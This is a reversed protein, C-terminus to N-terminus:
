DVCPHLLGPKEITFTNYYQSLLIRQWDLFFKLVVKIESVPDSSSIKPEFLGATLTFKHAKDTAQIRPRPM